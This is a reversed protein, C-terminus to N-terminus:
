ESMSVFSPREHFAKLHKVNHTGKSENTNTDYLEYTVPGVIRHVAYPGVWRYAFKKMFKKSKDSLFHTRVLVKDGVKFTLNTHRANYYRAQTTQAKDMNHMTKAYISQLKHILDTQYVTRDFFEEDDQELSRDLPLKMERGFILMAPSYGTTDSVATRMALSVAPLYEDWKNHKEAIYSSLCGRITRNIRETLNAQPHYPSTFKQKIGWAACVSRLMKSRFNTGNDTLIYKPAGYRCFIEREVVKAINAATANRLAFLETWKSFHDVIVLLQTNRNKTTPLPGMLDMAIMDWPGRRKTPQMQGHPKTNPNKTSQCKGCTRVYAFIEDQMYHWFFRKSIRALTKKLGLHGSHPADHFYNLIDTRLAKPLYYLKKNTRTLKYLCGEVVVFGKPLSSILQQCESDSNQKQILQAMTITSTLDSMFALTAIPHDMVDKEDEKEAPHVPARSLADAVVNYKGPCHVIKPAFDQIRLSWRMFKSNTDKMKNLWVLARNDTELTFPLGDLYAEFKKLSWTIALCEKETAHYHRETNSLSRSAFAIPVEKGDDGIQALVAGLGVDSSDTRLIFEKSFDPISLATANIICNKITDFSNVQEQSWQFGADKRLCKNLPEVITAFNPIYQRYWGCLGLFRKVDKPKRPAPFKRIPDLKEQDVTIGENTIVYGLYKLKSQGFSCKNINVTLKAKELASLVYAIHDLHDAWNKSYILIDDLYADAFTGRAQGLLKNVFRQFISPAIKLGFPMRLFEFKGESCVFATYPISEAEMAIQWYGKRLDIKSVFRAGDVKNLLDNIKPIPFPDSKMRANIQRYDLCFRYGDGEKQMAVPSAWESQSPRIIGLKLMQQVHEKILKRKPPSEYYPKQAIPRGEMELKCQVHDTKGIDLSIAKKYNQLLDNLEKQKSEDIGELRCLIPNTTFPFIKNANNAFYYSQNHLDIVIAAYSIFDAGLVILFPLKEVVQFDWTFRRNNLEFDIRCYGLVPVITTNGVAVSALSSTRLEINNSNLFDVSVFSHSAGTDLLCQKHLQEYTIFTTPIKADTNHNHATNLSASGLSTQQRVLKKSNNHHPFYEYVEPDQV